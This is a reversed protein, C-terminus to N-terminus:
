IQLGPSEMPHGDLCRGGFSFVPRGAFDREGIWISMDRKVTMPRCLEHKLAVPKQDRNEVKLTIFPLCQLIGENNFLVHRHGPALCQWAVFLHRTIIREMVIPGSRSRAHKIYLSMILHMIYTSKSSFFM